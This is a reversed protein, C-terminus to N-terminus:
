FRARVGLFYKRGLGSVPYASSAIYPRKDTLNNIGGYFEFGEVWEFRASVDHVWYPRAFGEEGFELDIREIQVASAVAQKGIYQTRWTFGFGGPSTWSASGVGAWEPAGLELLGPNVLDENVPDFFRNLKETWNVAGRLAFAHGSVDFAYNVNVDVGSTEIRGFNLRTQRLFSLGGDARRDFLDCFQNPFTELDYCTDVTDQATVAAAADRIEISYYDVSVSLGPVFRPQLVGGVTWTTAREETLDPNGGTTGSFRATLPDEYTAPNVGLASLAAACNAQRRQANEAGDAILAQITSSNCPDSPRFTTGQQPSFLEFIDPARIARSYTGRFRIDAVPAWTGAVNWTFAGGVTSYDAYRAAGEVSLEHFFPRESVIPVRLEGFVERVDFRGGSNFTRTQADFILSQNDSIDGIFTGDPLIGREESSFRSRSTERRYEGGFAFAVPGGPLNLFNATDGSFALTAVIQEIRFRDTTPTTIFDVAEQSVSQEGALINAPRCQGDGGRFTFFGSQIVPFIESGPHLATPDLDSRCVIRGDPARVADLAAFLRDVLVTNGQRVSSETLGYNFGFDYRFSDTLEGRAGVVVRYTERKARQINPGLDLFDRSVRLGGADDAESQLVAPIYPNDPFILLSDYFTNYNNRSTTETRAYKGDWFLEVAPTLEFRGRLNAYFRESGPILSSQSTREVAGDGGFQNQGTAIIGDEFVRVGGGPTSVYCGGGGFGTLGIFSEECDPVGNNNIDLNFFGFDARFILGSGSSIAFRPDPRIAFLPSSAARDILAQEAPTPTAGPFFTAFQSATPIAFGFPLRGAATSFRAAFNPMTAPNLDGKQFRRLPNGYTTSNNARGNNATFSRDGFLVEEDNTYGLSLTVNGRDQAFNRGYTGDITFSRGDGYRSIGMEADIDFGEFDRRLVYNVVGTVADAGYVASMGGTLVDIRDILAKPVTAVDVAQSGAVGSVHRRGDVLVLTRNSGLQRLDLVAQGVGGGGREISDAVTGSALLAPLQRLVAATDSSGSAQLDAAGLVSIPLPAIANPDRAIRSGTVVITEVAEGEAAPTAQPAQATEVPAEQAGLPMAIAIALMSVGFPVARRPHPLM